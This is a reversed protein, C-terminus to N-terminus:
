NGPRAADVAAKIAKVRDSTINFSVVCLGLLNREFPHLVDDAAAMTAMTYLVKERLAAGPLRTALNSVFDSIAVPTTLTAMRENAGQLLAKLVDQGVGWPLATVIADFRRIEDPTVKGDAYVVLMLAELVALKGSDDLAAFDSADLQM